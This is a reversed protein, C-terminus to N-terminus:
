PQKGETPTSVNHLYAPKDSVEAILAPTLTVADKLPDVLQVGPVEVGCDLLKAIVSYVPKRVTIVEVARPFKEALAILQEDTMKEFSYKRTSM